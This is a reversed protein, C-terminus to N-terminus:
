SRVELEDPDSHSSNAPVIMLEAGDQCAVFTLAPQWADNCILMACRGFRTDFARMATGASFHKREEFGNYTPLFLKRHVHVLAGADFFAASNYVRGGVERE